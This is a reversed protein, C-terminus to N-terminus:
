QGTYTTTTSVELTNTTDASDIGNLANAFQTTQSPAGAVTAAGSSSIRVGLSALWGVFVVATVMTAVQLAHQRRQHTPKSQMHEIYRKM